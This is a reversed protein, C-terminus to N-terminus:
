VNAVISAYAPDVRENLTLNLYQRPLAALRRAAPADFRGDITNEAYLAYDRALDIAPSIYRPSRLVEYIKAYDDANKAAEVMSAFGEREQLAFVVPASYVGSRIDSEVPKGWLSLNSLIDMLDDIMQFVIGFAEGFKGLAYLQGSDGAACQGGMVCCTRILAATKGRHVQIVDDINIDITYENDMETNQGLCVERMAESFTVAIPQSVRSVLGAAVWFLFDGTNIARNVGETSHVTPSGRRTPAGDMLDDHILTAVHFLEAASACSALSNFSAGGICAASAFVLAPRLRKGGSGILREIATDVVVNNAHAAKLMMQEVAALEAKTIFEDFVLAPSTV